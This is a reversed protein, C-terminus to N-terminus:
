CSLKRLYRKCQAVTDYGLLIGLIFDKGPDLKNLDKEKFKRIVELCESKGFFVNINEGAEQTHYEINQKKLAAVAKEQLELPLTHLILPRIGKKYEYILHNLVKM